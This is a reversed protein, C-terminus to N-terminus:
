DLSIRSRFSGVQVHDWNQMQMVDLGDVVCIEISSLLDTSDEREAAMKIGLPSAILIDCDMLKAENAPMVVVRWAKRTIKIGIRFNDDSNGRFNVIHDIPNSSAASPTALPDEGVDPPLSFSSIFPRLNEIQTGPPALPFLHTTLYHLVLSRLPALLLVKPRTFSQDRPPESMSASTNSSPVARALKENNRIIRRRTRAIDSSPKDCAIVHYESSSM